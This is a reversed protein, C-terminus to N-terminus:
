CDWATLDSNALLLNYGGVSYSSCSFLSTWIIDCPLKRCASIAAFHICVLFLEWFKFSGIEFNRKWGIPEFYRTCSVYLSMQSVGLVVPVARQEANTKTEWSLWIPNELVCYNRAHEWIFTADSLASSWITYDAHIRYRSSSHVYEQPPPDGMRYNM